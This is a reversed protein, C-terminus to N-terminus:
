QTDYFFLIQACWLMDNSKFLYLTFTMTFQYALLMFRVLLSLITSAGPAYSLSLLTCAMIRSPLPLEPIKKKVLHLITRDRAM